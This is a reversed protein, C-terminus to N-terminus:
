LTLRGLYLPPILLPRQMTNEGRPEASMPLRSYPVPAKSEIDSAEFGTPSKHDEFAVREIIRITLRNTKVFMPAECGGLEM